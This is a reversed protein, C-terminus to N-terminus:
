EKYADGRPRITLIRIVSQEDKREFLIRFRGVQM